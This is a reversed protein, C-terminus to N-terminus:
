LTACLILVFPGGPGLRDCEEASAFPVIEFDDLQEPLAPGPAPRGRVVRQAWTGLRQFPNSRLRNIEARAASRLRGIPTYCQGFLEANPFGAERAAALLEAPTYEKEHYEWDQPGQGGTVRANPTSVILRGGPALLERCRALFETPRPLHELTEFSVVADFPGFRGAEGLTQCDDRVLRVREHPFTERAIRLANEDRDVGTVSGVGHGALWHSGYGVGCAADLVAGAGDLRDAAFMYRHIHNAYYADWEPRGPHLREFAM